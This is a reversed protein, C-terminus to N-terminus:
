MRTLLIIDQGHPHYLGLVQGVTRASKKFPGNSKLGLGNMAYLIRRHVPKLGDAIAPVARDEIVYNAYSLFSYATREAIDQDVIQGIRAIVEEATKIANGDAM